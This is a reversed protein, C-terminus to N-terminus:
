FFGIWMRVGGKNLMYERTVTCYIQGTSVRKADWHIFKM